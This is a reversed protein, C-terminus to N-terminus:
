LTQGNGYRRERPYVPPRRAVIDTEIQLRRLEARIRRERAEQRRRAAYDIEVRPLEQRDRRFLDALRM